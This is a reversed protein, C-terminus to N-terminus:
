PGVGQGKQPGVGLFIRGENGRTAEEVWNRREEMPAFWIQRRAADYAMPRQWYPDYYAKDAALLGEVSSTAPVALSRAQLAALRILGDLDHMHYTYGQYDPNVIVALLNGGPNYYRFLHTYTRAQAAMQMRRYEPDNRLWSQKDFRFTLKWGHTYLDNISANRQWLYEGLWFGNPIRTQLSTEPHLVEYALLNHEHKLATQLSLESESMPMLAAKLRPEFRTALAPQAQLLDAVQLITYGASANGILKGILTQSHAMINRALKLDGLLRALTADAGPGAMALASGAMHLKRCTWLPLPLLESSQRQPVYLERWGRFGDLTDCRAQLLTNKELWARVAEPRTRATAKCTTWDECGELTPLVLENRHLDAPLHTNQGQVQASDRQKQAQIIRQGWAAPDQDAPALLGVSYPYGNDPVDEVDFSTKILAAIEPDLEEDFFPLNVLLLALTILAFPVLALPIGVSLRHLFGPHRARLWIVLGVWYAVSFAVTLTLQWGSVQIALLFPTSMAGAIVPAALRIRGGTSPIGALRSSLWGSLGGAVLGLLMAVLFLLLITEPQEALRRWAAGVMVAFPLLFLILGFKIHRLLHQRTEPTM